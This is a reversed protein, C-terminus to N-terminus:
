SRSVARPHEEARAAWVEDETFVETRNCFQCTVQIEGAIGLGGIEEAPLAILVAEARERSCCCGFALPLPQFARVGDEHYLRYLLRDPTLREDLLEATTASGTLSLARRWPEDDDEDRVPGTGGAKAERQLMLAGARWRGGPALGAALKVVTHLQESRRFYGLACEALTTGVLEVIGQYRETDSGQDVTVALYGMGLLRTLSDGPRTEALREADFAAYGRMRGGTAYDAVMLRLPGDSKTQVTLVGDFKLAGAVSATLALTEGLMHSVPAPYDHQRLVTDVTDGLRVVRGVVGLSDVRFPQILDDTREFM